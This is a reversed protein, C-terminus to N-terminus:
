WLPHVAITRTASVPESEPAGRRATELPRLPNEVPRDRVRIDEILAEVERRRAERVASADEETHRDEASLWPFACSSIPM